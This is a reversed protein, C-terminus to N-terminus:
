IQTDFSSTMIFLKREESTTQRSINIYQHNSLIFYYILCLLYILLNPLNFNIKIEQTYLLILM